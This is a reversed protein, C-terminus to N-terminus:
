FPNKGYFETIDFYVKYKKNDKEIEIIDYAKGDKKVLSQSIFTYSPFILGLITYEYVIGIQEINAGHIIIADELSTGSHERDAVLPSKRIEESAEEVSLVKPTKM